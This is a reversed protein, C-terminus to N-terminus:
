FRGASRNSQMSSLKLDAARTKHLVNCLNRMAPIGPAHFVFRESDGSASRDRNFTALNRSVALGLAYLTKDDETKLEPGAAYLPAVAVLVAVMSLALRKLM